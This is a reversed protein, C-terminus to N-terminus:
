KSPINTICKHHSPIRPFKPQKTSAAAMTGGGSNSLHYNVLIDIQLSGTTLENSILYDYFILHETIRTPKTNPRILAYVLYSHCGPDSLVGRIKDKKQKSLKLLTEDFHM